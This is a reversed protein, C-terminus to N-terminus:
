DIVFSLGSILCRWCFAGFAIVARFGWLGFCRLIGGVGFSCIYWGCFLLYLIVIGIPLVFGGDLVVVCVRLVM